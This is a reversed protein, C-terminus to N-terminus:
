APPRPEERVRFWRERLSLPDSPECAVYDSVCASSM